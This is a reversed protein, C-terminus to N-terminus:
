ERRGRIDALVATLQEMPFPKALLTFGQEVADDGAMTYGTTLVVPLGPRRERMLRAFALGNMEGPMVIDSIVLDVGGGGDLINLAQRATPAYHVTYGLSELMMRMTSAMLENDEVVLASRGRAATAKATDFKAAKPHASSPPLSDPIQV